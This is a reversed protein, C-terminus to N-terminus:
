ARRSRVPDDRDVDPEVFCWKVEPALARLRAEFDNIGHCVEDITLHAAFSLKIFVLVEGPGQQLTILRLVREIHHDGKAADHAAKAIDEDAAEGLLLSKVEQALFGAVSVLVLGILISGIGDWRGDGTFHAALLSGLSLLLGLVDASNEGFIVVLDSDKTDKLYQVFPTKGRRKNMERINSITAGGELVIGFGLVGVGWWVHEIPEPEMIKHIGEHISFVGGGVFLLLAVLFSWFYLERGHGLPHKDDPPKKSKRVGVLLLIQNACDAGSHLAEALMSGSRTFIAAGFKVLAIAANVALSQVIHGISEHAM